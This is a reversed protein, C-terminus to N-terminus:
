GRPVSKGDLLATGTVVCILQNMRITGVIMTMIVTGCNPFANATTVDSNLILIANVIIVIMLIRTLGTQAITTAMVNGRILFVDELLSANSVTRAVIPIVFAKMRNTRVIRLAMVFEYERYVLETTNASSCAQSANFRHVIKSMRDTWVTLMGTAHGFFQYVGNIQGEAGIIDKRVIPWAHKAM